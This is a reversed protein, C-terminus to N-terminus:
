YFFNTKKEVHSINQQLATMKGEKNVNKFIIM